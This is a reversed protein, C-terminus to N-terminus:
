SRQERTHDDMAKSVARLAAIMEQKVTQQSIGLRHAIRDYRLDDVCHMLLVDRTRKPLCAVAWEILAMEPDPAEDFNPVAPPPVLLDRITRAFRAALNDDAM